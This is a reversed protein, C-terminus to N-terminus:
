VAAGFADLMTRAAAAGVLHGKREYLDLAQQAAEVARRSEGAAECVRALVVLADAHQAVYDTRELLTVAERAAAIAGGYDGRLAAIQGEVWRAIGLTTADDAPTLALADAVADAAEEIRGQALLTDALVAGNTSRFATEEIDALIAYGQRVEREAAVADGALLEIWAGDQTQVGQRLRLGYEFAIEKCRRYHDRAAEFDGRMAELMARKQLLFSRGTPDLVRAAARDAFAIAEAVPTPGYTMSGISFAVVGAELRVNGARRAAM